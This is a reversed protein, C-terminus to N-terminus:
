GYPIFHMYDDELDFTLTTVFNVKIVMYGLTNTM